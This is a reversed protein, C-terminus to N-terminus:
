MGGLMSMMKEMMNGGQQKPKVGYFVEAIKSLLTFFHPERNLVNQYKEQLAVFLPHADRELTELLFELYHMLATDSKGQGLKNWAELLTNADKLNEFCLLQLVARTIFMDREAAPGKSAWQDLLVVLEEPKHAHIYHNVAGAVNGLRVEAAAAARQLEPQAHKWEGFEQSYAIAEKLFRHWLKKEEGDVQLTEFGKSIELLTALVAPDEAIRLQKLTAVYTKALDFGSTCNGFELMTLAGHSAISLAKKAKHKKLSRAHHTKYTQLASYAEGDKVSQRLRTLLDESM